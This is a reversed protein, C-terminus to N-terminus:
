KFYLVLGILAGLGAILVYKVNEHTMTEVGIPVDPVKSKPAPIIPAPTTTKLAEINSNTNTKLRKTKVSEGQMLPPSKHVLSNIDNKGPKMTNTAILINNYNDNNGVKLIMDFSIIYLGPAIVYDLRVHTDAVSKQYREISTPM